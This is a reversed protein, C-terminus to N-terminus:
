RVDLDIPESYKKDVKFIEIENDFARLQGALDGQKILLEITKAQPKMSSLVPREGKFISFFSIVQEREPTM